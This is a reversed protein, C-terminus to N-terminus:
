TYFPFIGFPKLGTDHAGNVISSHYYASSFCTYCSWMWGSSYTIGGPYYQWYANVAPTGCKGGGPGNTIAM